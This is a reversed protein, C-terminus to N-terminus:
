HTEKIHDDLAQVAMEESPYDHEHWACEDCWADWVTYPHVPM